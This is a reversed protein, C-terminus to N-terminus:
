GKRGLARRVVLSIGSVLVIWFFYITLAGLHNLPNLEPGFGRDLVSRIPDLLARGVRQLSELM